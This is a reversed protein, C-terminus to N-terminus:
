SQLRQAWTLEGNRIQLVHWSTSLGIVCLVARFLHLKCQVPWTVLKHYRRSGFPSVQQLETFVLRAKYKQSLEASLSQLRQVALWCERELFPFKVGGGIVLMKIFNSWFWIQCTRVMGGWWCSHSRLLSPLSTSSFHDNSVHKLHQRFSPARCPSM